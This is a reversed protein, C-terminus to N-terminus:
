HGFALRDHQQVLSRCARGLPFQEQSFDAKLRHFRPNQRFICRCLLKDKRVMDLRKAAIRGHGGHQLGLRDGKIRRGTRQAIFNGQKFM